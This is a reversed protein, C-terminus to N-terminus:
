FSSPFSYRHPDPDDMRFCRQQGKDQAFKEASFTFGYRRVDLFAGRAAL